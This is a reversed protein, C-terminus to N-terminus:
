KGKRRRLIYKDTAKRRRTKAGLAPKGWPTVPRKLGISTNGEGGGHRHDNPNMAKGRVTPRFGQRRKRGASGVKILSHSENGVTGITAYCEARVLRMEGSPLKVTVMEGEKAALQAKTGASRVLQGGKGPTLEINYITSGLPIASLPMRNHEKIEVEDAAKITSGVQMGSGALVYAKRGKEDRLLAINASRGPDYEIAAVTAEIMGTQKFDVIRIARKAGGGRHRVTIKGQNNRGAKQKRKLILSKEPKTKTIEEFTSVSMQRRAATNAKLVRIAM